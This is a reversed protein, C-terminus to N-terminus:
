WSRLEAAADAVSGASGAPMGHRELFMVWEDLRGAGWVYRARREEGKGIFAAGCGRRCRKRCFGCAHWPTRSVDGMRGAPGRGVRIARATRGGQRHVCSRLRTQLAEPLVRLCAM